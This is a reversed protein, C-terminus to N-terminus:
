SWFYNLRLRRHPSDRIIQQAESLFKLNSEPTVIGHKLILACMKEHVLHSNISQFDSLTNILLDEIAPSPVAEIAELLSM